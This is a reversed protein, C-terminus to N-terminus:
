MRAQLDTLAARLGRPEFGGALVWLFLDVLAVTASEFDGVSIDIELDHLTHEPDM